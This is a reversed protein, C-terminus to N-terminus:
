GKKDEKDTRAMYSKRGHTGLLDKYEKAEEMTREGGKLYLEYLRGEPDGQEPEGKKLPNLLGVYTRIAENVDDTMAVEENDHTVFFRLMGPIRLDPDPHEVWLRLNVDDDYYGFSPCIDNHWSVDEALGKSVLSLVEDPIDYEKGFENKWNASKNMGANRSSGCGARCSLGYWQM